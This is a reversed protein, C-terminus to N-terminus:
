FDVQRQRGLAPILPTHWWVRSKNQTKLELNQILKLHTHFELVPNSQVQIYYLTSFRASKAKDSLGNRNIHCKM